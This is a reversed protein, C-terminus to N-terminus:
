QNYVLTWTGNNPNFAYEERTYLTEILCVYEGNFTTMPTQHISVVADPNREAVRKRLVQEFAQLTNM